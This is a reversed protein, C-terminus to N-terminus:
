KKRTRGKRAAYKEDHAAKQEEATMAPASPKDPLANHETRELKQAKKLDRAALKEERMRAQAGARVEAKALRDALTAEDIPPKNRLQALAARKAKNALAAREQFSPEKYSSM